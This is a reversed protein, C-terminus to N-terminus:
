RGNRPAPSGILFEMYLTDQVWFDYASYASHGPWTSDRQLRMAPWIFLDIFPTVYHLPGPLDRRLHYIWPAASFYTALVLLVAAFGNSIRRWRPLVNM